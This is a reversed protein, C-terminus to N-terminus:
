RAFSAAARASSYTRESVRYRAPTACTLAAIRINPLGETRLVWLGTIPALVDDILGFATDTHNGTAMQEVARWLTAAADTTLACHEYSGAQACVATGCRRLDALPRLMGNSYLHVPLNDLTELHAIVEPWHLKQIMGYLLTGV